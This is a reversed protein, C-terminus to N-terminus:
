YGQLYPYNAMTWNWHSIYPELHPLHCHYQTITTDIIAALVNEHKHKLFDELHLYDLKKSSCHFYKWERALCAEKIDDYTIKSKTPNNHTSWHPLGWSTKWMTTLKHWTNFGHKALHRSLSTAKSVLWSPPVNNNHTHTHTKEKKKKRPSLLGVFGIGFIM